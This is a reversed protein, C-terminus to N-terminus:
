WGFMMQPLLTVVFPMAIIVICAATLVIAYPWRAMLAQPAIGKDENEFSYILCDKKVPRVLHAISLTLIFLVGLWVGSIIPSMLIPSFIPTIISLAAIKDMTLGIAFIIILAIILLLTTSLDAASTFRSLEAIVLSRTMFLGFLGGGIILTFTKAIQVAAHKLTEILGSFSLQRSAAAYVMALFAGIAAAETPRFWAFFLGGFVVFFLILVAFVSKLTGRPPAPQAERTDAVLSPKLLALILAALIFAITILIGPILGSLLSQGIYAGSLYGFIVLAVCFPAVLDVVSSIIHAVAMGARYKGFLYSLMHYLALRLRAKSIFAGMLIFLLAASLAYTLSIRMVNEGLTTLAPVAGGPTLLISGLAAAFLLSIGIPIRIVILVILVIIGFIGIEVPTM